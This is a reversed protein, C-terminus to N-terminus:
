RCLIQIFRFVNLHKHIWTTTSSRHWANSLGEYIEKNSLRPEILYISYIESAACEDHQKGFYQELITKSPEITDTSSDSTLFYDIRISRKRRYTYVHMSTDRQDDNM